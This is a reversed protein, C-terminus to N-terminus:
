DGTTFNLENSAISVRYSGPTLRAAPQLLLREINRQLHRAGYALDYGTEALHDVVNDGLTLSLGRGRLREVVAAVERDAIEHITATSLPDFMVVDDLRNFLEPPLASRVADLMRETAVSRESASTIFGTAPRVADAAGLNSTMIIVTRSFDVEGGRSDTLRGADLVQLFTNWVVPHAKEIEDLVVVADPVEAVRTTLWQDPETSGVYGPPPGVLRTISSDHVYESMDLRIPTREPGVLAESLALALATKGVGTPGVFLFVGDPREPRLDMRNRTLTLRGTVREIAVEQGVIRARLVQELAAIEPQEFETALDLDAVEAQTAGRLAARVGAGDLRSILLAPHALGSGRPAPLAAQEIVEDPIKIRHHEALEDSAARGIRGLAEEPLAPLALWHLEGALEQDQVELTARFRQDLVLAIRVKPDGLAARITALCGIDVSQGWGLGALVEADDLAVILDGLSSATKFVSQLTKARERAIVAAADVRLVRTQALAGVGNTAAIRDALAQLISSRGSGSPGVIVPNLPTRRALATILEDVVEGRGLVPSPDQPQVIRAVAALSQPLSAPSRTTQKISSRQAQSAPDADTREANHDAAAPGPSASNGDAPAHQLEDNLRELVVTGLDADLSATLLEAAPERDITTVFAGSPKLAARLSRVRQEGFLEGYRQEDVELLAAALHVARVSQHGARKAASVALDLLQELRAPLQPM